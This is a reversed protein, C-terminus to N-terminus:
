ILRDESLLDLGQATRPTRHSNYSDLYVHQRNWSRALIKNAPPLCHLFLQFFDILCRQRHLSLICCSVCPSASTSRPLRFLPQAPQSQPLKGLRPSIIRPPARFAKLSRVDHAFPKDAVCHADNADVPDKTAYLYPLPTVHHDCDSTIPHHHM